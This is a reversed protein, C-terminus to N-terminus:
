RTREELADAAAPARKNKQYQNQGKELSWVFVDGGHVEVIWKM